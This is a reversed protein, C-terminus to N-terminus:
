LPLICDISLSLCICPHTETSPLSVCVRTREREAAVEERLAKFGLM